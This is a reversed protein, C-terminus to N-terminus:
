SQLRERPYHMIQWSHPDGRKDGRGEHSNHGQRCQARSLGVV